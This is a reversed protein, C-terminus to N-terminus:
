GSTRRSLSRTPRFRVGGLRTLTALRSRASICLRGVFRVEAFTKPKGTGTENAYTAFLRQMPLRSRKYLAQCRVTLLSESLADNEMKSALPLVSAELFQAYQLKPRDDLEPHKHHALKRLIAQAGPPMSCTLRTAANGEDDSHPGFRSRATVYRSFTSTWM